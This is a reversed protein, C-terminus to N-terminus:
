GAGGVLRFGLQLLLDRAATWSFQSVAVGAALSAITKAPYTREEHEVVFGRSEADEWSAENPKGRRGRDFEAFAQVISERSLAPLM